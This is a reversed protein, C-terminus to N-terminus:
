EQRHYNLSSAKRRVLKLVQFLPGQVKGPCYMLVSRLSVILQPPQLHILGSFTLMPSGAGGRM